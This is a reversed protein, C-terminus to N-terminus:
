GDAQDEDDDGEDAEEELEVEKEVFIFEINERQCAAEVAAIFDGLLRDADEFAYGVIQKARRFSHQHDHM